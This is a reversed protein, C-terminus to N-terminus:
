KHRTGDGVRLVREAKRGSGFAPREEATYDLKATVQETEHRPGRALIAVHHEETEQVKRNAHQSV